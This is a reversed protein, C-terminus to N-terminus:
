QSHSSRLRYFRSATGAFLDAKEAASAGHALRKFANFLVPYSMRRTSRFIARSCKSHLAVAAFDGARETDYKLFHGDIEMKQFSHEAVLEYGGRAIGHGSNGRCLHM